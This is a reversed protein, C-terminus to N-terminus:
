YVVPDMFLRDALELVDQLREIKSVRLERLRPRIAKEQKINAKSHRVPRSGVDPLPGAAADGFWGLETIRLSDPDYRMRVLCGSPKSALASHVNVKSAKGGQVCAKLQIHRTVGNAEVVVDYGSTDFDSRLVEYDLGRRLLEATLQGLFQYELTQEVM